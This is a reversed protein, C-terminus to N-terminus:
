AGGDASDIERAVAAVVADCGPIEFSRRRTVSLTFIREPPAEDHRWRMADIWWRGEILVASYRAIYHQGDAATVRVRMEDRSNSQAIDEVAVSNARFMGGHTSIVREFAEFSVEARYQPSFLGYAIQPESQSLADLQLRVVGEPTSSDHAAAGSFNTRTLFWTTLSFAAFTSAFLATVRRQFINKRAAERPASFIAAAADPNAPIPSAPNDSQEQM